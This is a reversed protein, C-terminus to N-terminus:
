PGARKAHCIQGVTEDRLPPDLLLGATHGLGALQNSGVQPSVGGFLVTLLAKEEM